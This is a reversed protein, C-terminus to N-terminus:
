KAAERAFFRQKDRKCVSYLVLFLGLIGVNLLAAVRFGPMYTKLRDCIANSLPNAIMTALSAMALFIGTVSLSAQYGFLTQTMLPIMLATMCLGIAFFFCGVYCLVPDTAFSLIGQGLIASGMCMVMVPKTGIRDCLGGGVLKAGAVVLMIMSQYGSAEGASFGVIRFHSVAVQSTMYVCTCSALVCFSMLYFSPMKLLEKLTYGPYDNIRNPKKMKREQGHGFPLLGRQEPTDSVFLYLVIVVAVLAGGVYNAIRWDYAEIVSSFLITMLSGGLGSSMSVAGLVLGQHTWFWDKVIWVAGATFCLGYATAFLSKGIGYVILSNASGMVIQSLLVLFLAVLSSRKFGYKRLFFGSTMNALCSIVSYPMLAAAFSAKSVKLGESVPLIYVSASNIMGGFVIMELFVIAAVIWHYNQKIKRFVSM